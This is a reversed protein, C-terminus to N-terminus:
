IFINDSLFPKKNNNLNNNIVYYHIGEFTCLLISLNVLGLLMNEYKGTKSTANNRNNGDTDDKVLKSGRRTTATSPRMPKSQANRPRPSELIDSESSSADSDNSIHISETDGSSAARSLFNTKTM